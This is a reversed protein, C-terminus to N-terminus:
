KFVSFAGFPHHPTPIRRRAFAFVWEMLRKPGELVSDFCDQSMELYLVNGHNIIDAKISLFDLKVTRRIIGIDVTDYAHGIRNRM